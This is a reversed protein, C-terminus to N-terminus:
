RRLAKVEDRLRQKEDPWLERWDRNELGAALAWLLNLSVGKPQSSQVRLFARVAGIEALEDITGIGAAHLWMASKPGLNRLGAIPRRAASPRSRM